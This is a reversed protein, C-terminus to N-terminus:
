YFNLLKEIKEYNSRLHQVDVNEQGKIAKIWACDLRIRPHASNELCARMQAPLTENRHDKLWKDLDHIASIIEECYGQNKLVWGFKPVLMRRHELLNVQQVHKAPIKAHEFISILYLTSNFWAVLLEWFKDSSEKLFPKQQYYTYCGHNATVQNQCCTAISQRRWLGYRNFTWVRGTLDGPKGTNGRMKNSFYDWPHFFWEERNKPTEKGGNRAKRHMREKILGTLPRLYLELVPNIRGEQTNPPILLLWFPSTNEFIADHARPDRLCPRLFEQPISLRSKDTSKRINGSIEFSISDSKEHIVPHTLYDNPLILYRSYTADFGRFSGIEDSEGLPVLADQPTLIVHLFSDKLFPNSESMVKGAFIKDAPIIKSTGYFKSELTLQDQGSIILQALAEVDAQSPEEELRVLRTQGSSTHLNEGKKAVILYEKWCCDISFTGKTSATEVFYKFSYGQKQLFQLLRSAVKGAFTTAPIVLALNGREKLYWDALFLFYFQLGMRADTFAQLGQIAVWEKLAQKQDPNLRLQSSFPPNMIVLDCSGRADDSAVLFAEGHIIDVHIESKVEPFEHLFTDLVFRTLEVGIPNIDSGFVNLNHGANRKRRICKLASLLLNGAGCAPDCIKTELGTVSLEGLLDAAWPATYFAATDKRVKKPLLQPVKHAIDALIANTLTELDFESFHERIWQQADTTIHSLDYHAM